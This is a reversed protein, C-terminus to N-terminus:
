VREINEDPVETEIAELTYQVNLSIQDIHRPYMGVVVADTPKINAFTFRFANRVQDQTQCLRGAALIKFALCPKDVQRIVRYMKAPDDDDFNEIMCQFRDAVLNIEKGKRKLNYLSAMYFDVDWGKDQAYDIVDPNHTGLGVTVGTDRICKLCDQVEDIQGNNWLKDTKSGHHYIAIAGAAAVVRINQFVDHMETATQAIWQLKGGERRFLELWYLIRHYDARAQVTNIGASEAAQLTKVVQEPTFYEEMERSMADTYHSNACLPNGGIILRTIEHPGLKITPLPPM